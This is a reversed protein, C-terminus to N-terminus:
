PIRNQCGDKLKVATKKLVEFTGPPGLESHRPPPLCQSHLLSIACFRALCWTVLDESRIYVLAEKCCQPCLGFDMAQSADEMAYFM